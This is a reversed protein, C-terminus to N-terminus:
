VPWVDILNIKVSRIKTIRCNSLGILDVDSFKLEINVPSDAGQKIGINPIHLPDIPIMNIGPHGEKFIFLKKIFFIDIQQLFIKNKMKLLVSISVRDLTNLLFMRLEYLATLIVLMADNSTMQQFYLLDFPFIFLRAPILRFMLVYFLFLDIFM